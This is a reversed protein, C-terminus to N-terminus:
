ECKGLNCKKGSACDKDEACVSCTGYFCFKADPDSTCDSNSKCEICEGYNPDCYKGNQSSTCDSDKKCEVCMDLEQSCYNYGEDDEKCQNDTTCYPECATNEKNCELSNCENYVFKQKEFDEDSYYDAVYVGIYGGGVAPYCVYTEEVGFDLDEEEDYYYSCINHSEKEKKCNTNFDDKCVAVNPIDKSYSSFDANVCGDECKSKVLYHKYDNKNPMKEIQHYEYRELDKYYDDEPICGVANKQADCFELDYWEKKCETNAKAANMENNVCIGNLETTGNACKSSSGGICDGDKCAKGSECAKQATWTNNVCLMPVGKEDCKKEDNKCKDAEGGGVCDGENCTKGDECAAQATWVNNVCLMPIGKEDCKKEDNKCKNAEGGGVCDGDNCTKGNECAAQATWVNNVCLMPVGKEDCKKEDNECKTDEGGGVCDGDKCTKGNECANQVTWLNNICHVPIGSESCKKANGECKDADSADKCEGDKCIKGTECANQATWANNVCLMPVGKEDCKKDDNQCKTDEQGGGGVCEGNNCTKGSECANQATWANNICLMPIGKEDCKKENNTCKTDTGSGGGNVCEGDKCTTGAACANQAKWQGATCLMPVGKEDCKKQNNQCAAGPQQPTGSASCTGNSCTQGTACATQDVWAGDVCKQPVGAASCQVADNTCSPTSSNNSDSEEACASIFMTAAALALVMSLKQTM